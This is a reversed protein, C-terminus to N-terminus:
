AASRVAVSLATAVNAGAHLLWPGLISGSHIRLWGAFLAGVFVVILIAWAEPMITLLLLHPALFILAQAVNARRPSLRRSLSGAILGRFLLEEAFGTKVVGYILAMAVATASWGLGGFQRQASGERLMTELDPPWLLLAIVTVVLGALAYGLYRVEGIQLGARRLIERTSRRHRWKQFVWYAFLPLAALVVVNVLASLLANVLM